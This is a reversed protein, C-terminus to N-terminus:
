GRRAWEGEDFSDDDPIIEEEQDSRGDHFMDLIITSMETVGFIACTLHAGSGDSSSDEEDPYENKYNDEEVLCPQIKLVRRRFSSSCVTQIRM